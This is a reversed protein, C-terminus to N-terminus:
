HNGMQRRAAELLLRQEARAIATYTREVADLEVSISTIGAAVLQDIIETSQGPALGCISCPISSTKALQIISRIAAMVAPHHEDFAPAMQAQDRDVGLLLQTLDNTGISVGQVGAKVYDPLLFLVSPVEAMIWLQFQGYQTLGAAIARSRCFAFEEVTRVFPLLLRINTSGSQQVQALAALELDFLTPDSLYSFTGRMGLMPNTEPDTVTSGSLAQFEHSRLDLSRYFVPRPSFAKAFQCIYESLTQVLERQREQQVWWNPHRNELVGLVMMESRLLGLGDVPLAAAHEILEPQSLNVLLQTAIPHKDKIRLRQDNTMPERNLLPSTNPDSIETSISRNNGLPKAELSEQRVTLSSPSSVLSITGQDGDVVVYEDTKILQTAGVAGVVAPIGLERAMISAHCTMGGQEAVIGAARKLLPLWDPTISKTVLIRGSSIAAVNKSFGSIVQAKAMAQGASAALGRIAVLLPPSNEAVTEAAEAEGVKYSHLKTDSTSSIPSPLSGGAQSAIAWASGRSPLLYPPVTGVTIQTLYLSPESNSETLSLTWELSFVAGVERRFRQALAILQKLYEEELAYKQQQQESLLYAQLYDNLIFNQQNNTASPENGNSTQGSSHVIFGSNRRDRVNENPSYRARGSLANGYGMPYPLAQSSYHASNLGALTYALTKSGLQQSYVVGTEPHVQFSDPIVQGKSLTHSLGWTAQISFSTIDSQLTGSAVCQWIPQVLIALNLQQLKIGVRQWYFLSRARFLEAWTQKLSLTLPELARPCIHTEYLGDLFLFSPTLLLPEGIGEHREGLLPFMENGGRELSPNPSRPPNPLTLSSVAQERLAISPSFQLLATTMSQEPDTAMNASHALLQREFVAEVAWLLQSVWSEPLAAAIIEQRIKQSVQQLQRPNDVDLYLSSYPLDLGLPESWNMTELFEQFSPAPIVFGNVIPYGQQLLASLYFAKEGVLPRDTSQIQDLRYLNDM